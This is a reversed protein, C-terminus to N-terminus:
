PEINYIMVREYIYDYTSSITWNNRLYWGNFNIEPSLVDYNGWNMHIYWSGVCTNGYKKIGDAVWAHKDSYKTYVKIYPIGLTSTHTIRVRIGERTM